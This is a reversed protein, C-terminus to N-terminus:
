GRGTGPVFRCSKDNRARHGPGDRRGGSVPNARSLPRLAAMASKRSQTQHAPGDPSMWTAAIENYQGQRSIKAGSSLMRPTPFIM